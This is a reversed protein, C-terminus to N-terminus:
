APLFWICSVPHASHCLTIYHINREGDVIGAEWLVRPGAVEEVTAFGLVQFALERIMGVVGRGHEPGVSM